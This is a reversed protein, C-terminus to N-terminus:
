RASSVRRPLKAPTVCAFSGADDVPGRGSYRAIKPYACLTRTRVTRDQAVQSAVLTSPAQGMEVWNIMATMADFRDPGYGGRCHFMGPIMFLRFFDDTGAGNARRAAEYYDVGMQPNLTMDAWGYYMLLKGRRRRVGGLDPNTADVAQRLGDLKGFDRALDFTKWDYATDRMVAYRLQGSAVAAAGQAFGDPGITWGSKPGGSIGPEGGMAVGPFVKRGGVLVGGYIKRFTNAEAGTLCGDTSATGCRPVDRGPDFDCRRPDEILGDNLGDRSDCRAYLTSGVLQIKALSLPVEDLARQMWIHKLLLGSFDIAPAGAVIGDFDEPFRQAEILGERGGTSCGDWYSFKVPQGYYALAARKALEATLHVARYGYDVLKQQDMAFTYGPEQRGDHGANTSATVFGQRLARDRTAARGPEDPSEGAGGGNGMMYFRDNWRTPLNIELGIAPAVIASVRCHEPAGATQPVVTASKVTLDGTTLKSLDSCPAAAGTPTATFAVRSSAADAFPGVPEKAVVASVAPGALTLATALFLTARSKM